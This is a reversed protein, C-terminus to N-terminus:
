LTVGSPAIAPSDSVTMPGDTSMHVRIACRELTSLRHAVILVTIDPGLSSIASMVRSETSTDLASTAEDLILVDANRYLARAIGVRQRQGGSLRVGREGVETRYGEPLTAVFDHLGARQAASAVRVLDVREPAEGFAINDALSSDALFISQPVHALRAQWHRMTEPTLPVGDVELRGESPELLGMVVDLLTSKGCGTEGSIGVRAGRPVTLSLHRFVWRSNERYRFGVDRLALTHTFPVADPDGPQEAHSPLPADILQRVHEISGIQSLIDLRGAHIHQLLPLLRQLGLAVGGMVPLADSVRGSKATTVVALGAIVGIGLAEVLHRPLHVWRSNRELAERVTGDVGRFRALHGAQGAHLLIDRIGGIGEQMAQLRLRRNLSVTRSHTAVHRHALRSLATYAGGLSVAALLAVQWDLLFLGCVIAVALVSSTAIDVVRQMVGDVVGDVSQPVALVDSSNRLLHYRYPQHLVRRYVRMLIDHGTRQSFRVTAWSLTLRLTAAALVVGILVATLRMMVHPGPMQPDVVVLRWVPNSRGPVAGALAAVFTTVVGLTALEAIAGVLALIVLVALDLRRQPSLWGFMMVLTSSWLKGATSRSMVM